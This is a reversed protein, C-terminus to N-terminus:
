CTTSPMCRSGSKGDLAEFYPAGQKNTGIAHDAVGKFYGWSAINKLGQNYKRNKLHKTSVVGARGSADIIDDFKITGSTGDKRTWTASVPRGPNPLESNWAEDLPAWEINDVKTEDFVHAGMEGAHRFIM